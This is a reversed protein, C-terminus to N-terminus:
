CKGPKPQHNPCKGISRLLANNRFPSDTEYTMTKNTQKGGFLFFIPKHNIRRRRVFFFCTFILYFM